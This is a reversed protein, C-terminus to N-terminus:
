FGELLKILTLIVSALVTLAATLSAITKGQLKAGEPILSVPKRLTAIQGAMFALSKDIQDLRKETESDM